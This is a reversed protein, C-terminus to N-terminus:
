AGDILRALVTGHCLLHRCVLRGHLTSLFPALAPTLLPEWLPEKAEELLPVVVTKLLCFLHRNQLM